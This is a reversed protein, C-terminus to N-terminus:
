KIGWQALKILVSIDLYNLVLKGHMIKISYTILTNM